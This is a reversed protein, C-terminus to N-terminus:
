SYLAQPYLYVRKKIEQHGSDEWPHACVLCKTLMHQVSDSLGFRIGTLERLSRPALEASLLSKMGQVLAAPGNSPDKYM